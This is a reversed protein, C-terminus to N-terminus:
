KSKEFYPQALLKDFFNLRLSDAFLDSERM